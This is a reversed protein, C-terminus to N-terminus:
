QGVGSFFVERFPLSSVIEHILQRYTGNDNLMKQTLENVTPQDYFELKRCLAYSLMQVVINRVVAESRTSVLIRKLEDIDDFTEGTPLRGSTDVLNPVQAPVEITISKTKKLSQSKYNSALLFAGKSDYSELAFGLPDIKDHCLACTPQTRHQEFRQRFTLNEGEKNPQVQGVNAPPDPLYEGLIRELIWTGRIIPGRNMALIGPMTLIGGRGETEELRIRQNPVIENEIGKPKAYRALQKRDKDYFGATHINVFEVKSDILELLPRDDQILYNLFDIPQNKLTMVLPVNTSVEVIDDLLLWQVGWDVALNFARPSNLMRETQERLVQRQNLQGRSAIEFLERDPMDAWLFYSLREALEFDDVPQRKGLQTEMLIGRYLFGPSMLIAKLEFEIAAMLDSATRVREMSERLREEDITRRAARPQINRLLREANGLSFGETPIEGVIFELNEKRKPSFLEAIASDSLQSYRDWAVTTLPNSYTDNRYGSPGPPDTPLLKMVLSTETITEEAIAVNAQLDFGLLSRLTQRYERASLRRPRYPSPRAFVNDVFRSQFWKVIKAREVDSPTPENEPPMKEDKIVRVASRWTDFAADVSDDSQPSMLDINGNPDSEGHCKFCYKALLPRINAGFADLEDGNLISAQCALIVPIAFLPIM